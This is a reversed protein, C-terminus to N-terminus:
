EEAGKLFTNLMKEKIEPSLSGNEDTLGMGNCQKFAELFAANKPNCLVSIPVNFTKSMLMKVADSYNFFIKEKFAEKSFEFINGHQSKNWIFAESCDVSFTFTEGEKTKQYKVFQSKVLQFFGGDTGILLWAKAGVPCPLLEARDSEYARILEIAKEIEMGYFHTPVNDILKAAEERDEYDALKDIMRLLHCERTKIKPCTEAYKCFPTGFPARCNERPFVEENIFVKKGHRKTIREGM